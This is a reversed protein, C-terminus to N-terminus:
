PIGRNGTNDIRCFSGNGSAGLTNGNVGSGIHTVNARVVHQRQSIQEGPFFIAINFEINFAIWVSTRLFVAIRTEDFQNLLNIRLLRCQHRIIRHLKSRVMSPIQGTLGVSQSDNDIFKLLRIDPDTKKHIRIIFLDLVGCLQPSITNLEVCSGVCVSKWIVAVNELRKNFSGFEGTLETKLDIGPM